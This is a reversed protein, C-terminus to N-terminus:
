CISSLRMLRKITTFKCISLYIFYCPSTLPHVLKLDGHVNMNTTIYVAPNRRRYCFCTIITACTTSSCSIVESYTSMFM